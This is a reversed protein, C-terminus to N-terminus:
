ESAISESWYVLSRLHRFHSLWTFPVNPQLNGALVIMSWPPFGIGNWSCGSNSPGSKSVSESSDEISGETHKRDDFIFKNRSKEWLNLSPLNITILSNRENVDVKERQFLLAFHGFTSFFM